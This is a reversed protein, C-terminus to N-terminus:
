EKIDERVKAIEELHKMEGHIGKRISYGFIAAALVYSLCLAVIGMQSFYNSYEPILLYFGITYAVLISLTVPGHIKKRYQYFTYFQENATATSSSMDIKQSRHISIFEIAIRLALGGLMLAVGVHSLTEQFPTVFYFFASIGILTVLLIAINALHSHQAKKMKNKSAKILDETSMKTSQDKKADNWQDKIDNLLDDM